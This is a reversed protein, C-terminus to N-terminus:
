ILSIDSDALRIHIGYQRDHNRGKTKVAGAKHGGRDDIGGAILDDIVVAYAAEIDTIREKRPPEEGSWFDVPNKSKYQVIGM